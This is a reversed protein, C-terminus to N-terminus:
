FFTLLNIKKPVYRKIVKCVPIHNTIQLYTFFLKLPRFSSKEYVYHKMTQGIMLVIMLEYM